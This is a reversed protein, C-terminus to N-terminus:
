ESQRRAVLIGKGKDPLMTHEGPSPCRRVLLGFDDLHVTSACARGSFRLIFTVAIASKGGGNLKGNPNHLELLDVICNKRNSKFNSYECRYIREPM